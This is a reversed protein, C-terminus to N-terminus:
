YQPATGSGALELRVAKLDIEAKCHRCFHKKTMEDSFIEIGKGCSPCTGIYSQLNKFQDFGPCHDKSNM